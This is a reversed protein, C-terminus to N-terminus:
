QVHMGEQGGEGEGNMLVVDEVHRTTLDQSTDFSDDKTVHKPSGEHYKDILLLLSCGCCEVM